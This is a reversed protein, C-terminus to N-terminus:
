LCVKCDPVVINRQWVLKTMKARPCPDLPPQFSLFWGGRHFFSSVLINVIIYIYIMYNIDLFPPYTEDNPTHRFGGITVFGGGVGNKAREVGFKSGIAWAV